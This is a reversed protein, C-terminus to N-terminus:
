NHAAPKAAQREAYARLLPLTDRWLRPRRARLSAVSAPDSALVALLLAQLRRRSRPLVLVPASGHRLLLSKGQNPFLLLEWMSPNELRNYEYLALGGGRLLQRAFAAQEVQKRGPLVFDRVTVVTDTVNPGNRVFRRLAEPAVLQRLPDAEDHLLVRDHHWYSIRADHWLGDPTQYRGARLSSGDLVPVPPAPPLTTAARQHPPVYAPNHSQGLAAFCLLVM